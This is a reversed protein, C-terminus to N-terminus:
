PKKKRLVAKRMDQIELINENFVGKPWDTLVGEEDIFIENLNQSDPSSDDVWYIIVDEAKLGFDNEVVLKRIRLLINESHTEIIFNQNNKKSSKAFLEGIDGHAAPHLHLEPQELIILSDKKSIHARVVLPLAQNMGQGVDVINIASGNKNLTIEIFPRNKDEVELSWNNFNKKYWDGVNKHLDTKMLKSVGLIPYANEGKAGTNEYTIRGTLHFQREPLMRFPGIYDVDIDFSLAKDSIINIRESDIIEIPIIGRFKCLYSNGEADVYGNEPSYKLSLSFNSSVYEWQFIILNYENSDQVISVTLTAENEFEVIFKLPFNPQKNHVLDLFEGGLEVDNNILLLPEDIKGSLSNELLTFLKAVSSKGSSNKGILITIPKLVMKQGKAFAKYNEFSLSKIKM